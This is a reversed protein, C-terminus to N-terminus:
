ARDPSQPSVSPPTSTGTRAHLWRIVDAHVEDRNIENLVEHRAGPYYHATVALGADRLRKELVRVQAAMASVPDMEGTILLVPIAPVAAIGEPEMAPLSLSLLEAVFGFTLPLGDGCLPDAIYADVEAPDRSLWDFKTRAPEFPENFPGLMDLPDDAMGGAVAAQMGAVMEAANDMPGPCGSLVYGTLDEGHRAVYAQAILAGMSHGFLFRGLGPHAAGALASLTQLDDLLAAGGGPGLRGSGTSAATRGHGRQDLAYAAFGHENLARAFREYRGSHESAGHAVLVVAAADGAPEWRRYSVDIGDGSTFSLEGESGDTV